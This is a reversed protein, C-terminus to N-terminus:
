IIEESDDLRLLIDAYDDSLKTVASKPLHPANLKHYAVDVLENVLELQEATLQVIRQRIPADTYSVIERRRPFESETNSGAQVTNIWESDNWAQDSSKIEEGINLLRYTKM